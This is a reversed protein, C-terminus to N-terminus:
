NRRWIQPLFAGGLVPGCVVEVGHGTLLAALEIVFPRLLNPRVFLPGLDLWLNGHHGSELLFHGTRAPVLRLLKEVM